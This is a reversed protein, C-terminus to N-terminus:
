GRFSRINQKMGQHLFQFRIVPNLPSARKILTPSLRNCFPIDAPVHKEEAAERDALSVLRVGLALMRYQLTSESDRSALDKEVSSVSSQDPREVYQTLKCDLM